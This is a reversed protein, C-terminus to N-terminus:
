PRWRVKDIVLFLVLDLGDSAVSMMPLFSLQLIEYLPLAIRLAIVGPFRDVMYLGGLQHFFILPM